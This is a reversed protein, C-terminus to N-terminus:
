GRSVEDVAWDLPGTFGSAGRRSATLKAMAERIAPPPPVAKARDAEIQALVPDPGKPGPVTLRAVDPGRQVGSAAGSVGPAAAAADAMQGRVTAVVWRQRKGLAVARAAVSAIHGVDAGADVLMRLEPTPAADVVGASALAQVAQAVRETVVQVQVPPKPQEASDPSAMPACASRFFARASEKSPEISPEPSPEPSVPTLPPTVSADPPTTVSADPPSAPTPPHSPTSKPAHPVMSLRYLNPRMHDAMRALGGGNVERMVLGMDILANIARQVSRGDVHAYGALTEISPWANDGSRDAHSAIGILVVKQTGSVPADLAWSM